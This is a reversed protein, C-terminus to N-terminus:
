GIRQFGSLKPRLKELARRHHSLVTNLKINNAKAISAFSFDGYYRQLIIVREIQKLIDLSKLVEEADHSKIIDDVVDHEDVFDIAGDVTTLLKSDSDIRKFVRYAGHICVKSLYGFNCKERSNLTSAVAENVIDDACEIIQPRSRFKSKVFRVLQARLGEWEDM